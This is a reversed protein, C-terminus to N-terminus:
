CVNLSRGYKLITKMLVTGVLRPSEVYWCNGSRFYVTADNFENISITSLEAYSMKRYPFSIANEVLM